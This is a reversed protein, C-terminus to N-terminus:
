ADIPLKEFTPVELGLLASPFGFAGKDKLSNPRIEQDAEIEETFIRCPM